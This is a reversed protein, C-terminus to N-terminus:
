NAKSCCQKEESYFSASDSELIKFLYPNMLQPLVNFGCAYCPLGSNNQFALHGKIGKVFQLIGFQTSQPM